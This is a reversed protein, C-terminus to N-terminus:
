HCSRLKGAFAHLSSERPWAPDTRSLRSWHVLCPIGVPNFLSEGGVRIAGTFYLPGCAVPKVICLQMSAIFYLLLNCERGCEM